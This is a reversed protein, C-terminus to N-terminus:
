NLQEVLYDDQIVGHYAKDGNEYLEGTTQYLSITATGVQRFGDMSLQYKTLLTVVDNMISNVEKKGKQASWIHLQQSVQHMVVTKNEEAPTGHFEGLWIYPMIETGDPISDYVPITQGKHLLQYLGKQIENFPIRSIM